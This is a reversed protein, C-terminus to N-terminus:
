EGTYVIRYIAGAYDDSVLLSGDELILIDVPRGWVDGNPLLWGDAFVEYGESENDENIFVNTVRYGIRESRNWSGHEAIFPQNLYSEPFQEGTYFRIGLSAVHPGLDQVPPTFDLCANHYGHEPDVVDTGFCHPFGFHQGVESVHNLEDPPIDDGLMDRGNDTFWIDGTEPHWDFGVTNRIGTAIIEFDSGDLNLRSLYGYSDSASCVNCPAGQPVYLMGDAGIRLYKWGHHVDPLLNDFIIHAEPQTQQDVANLVEDYRLIRSIDAVYLSGEHYAVGNPQTLGQALVHVTEAYHDGDTDRIAYIVGPQRTGVFVTGDDAVTMSRANPINQAYIHIQFGEPLNINELPLDTEITPLSPTPPSQSIIMTTLLVLFIKLM